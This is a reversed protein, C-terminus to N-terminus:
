IYKCLVVSGIYFLLENIQQTAGLCDGTFGGLWKEFYYKLYWTVLILPIILLMFYWDPLLLMPIIGTLLAFLFDGTLMQKGLPKVKSTEDARAYSSTYIISVAMLRSLSHGAILIYPLYDIKIYTLSLYKLALM